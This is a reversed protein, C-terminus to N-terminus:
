KALVLKRTLESQGSSLRYFYMGSSCVRGRQDRGDWAVRHAGAPQKQDVLTRV